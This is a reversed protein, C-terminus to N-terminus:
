FIRTIILVVSSVASLGYLLSRGIGGRDQPVVIQDGAGLSLQDLTRGETIARQLARGEWIPKGDREVRIATLKAEGAPGGALMLADTLLVDAPVVYFGPNGVAGTITIRFLARAQVRPERIFRSLQATLHEELESRLVGSLPIAGVVPLELTGNQSVAFTGTLPEEGEVRM